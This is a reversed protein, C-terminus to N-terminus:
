TMTPRYTKAQVTGSSAFGTKGKQLVLVHKPKIKKGTMPCIMTPKVLTTYMDELMVHGSGSKTIAVVPQTTIAKHSVCCVINKGDDDRELTLPILDKRRLPQGSYPSVPRDPPPSPLTQKTTSTAATDKAYDPAVQPMWYSSKKLIENKTRTQKEQEHQKTNSRKSSDDGISGAQTLRQTYEFQQIDKEEQAKLEEEQQQELLALQTEYQRQDRKLDQTKTLLYNLIAEQSYVHGSPTAVAQEGSLIPQLNLACTGFKLQSDSHLRATTTGYASSKFKKTREYHTLPQHGGAQKSKRTM